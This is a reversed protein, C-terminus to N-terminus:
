LSQLNQMRLVDWIFPIHYSHSVFNCIYQQNLFHQINNKRKSVPLQHNIKEPYKLM